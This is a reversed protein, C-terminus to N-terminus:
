KCNNFFALAETIEEADVRKLVPHGVSELAVFVIQKYTNKKDNYIKNVVDSFKQEPIEPLGSYLQVLKGTYKELDSFGHKQSLYLEIIIGIIVAEGHPINLVTEVAHGVTHGFNLIKRLGSEKFDKAVINQKFGASELIIEKLFADNELDPQFVKKEELNAGLFFHKVTEAYGLLKQRSSLTKLFSSYIWIKEPNQFTGIINKIGSFNIGTKGGISADTMALLTTPVHVFPIGRKYVTAVFGGIDTVVGGGLNILLTNRDANIELLTQWINECISISKSEEGSPIVIVESGGTQPINEDLVPLCHEYVNEDTLIITQSFERADLLESFVQEWDSESDILIIDGTKKL